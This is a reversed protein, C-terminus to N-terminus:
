PNDGAARATQVVLDPGEISLVIGQPAYIASLQSVADRLESTHIATAAKPLTFDSRLTYQLKMGNDSAWRTLMTKLTGDMPTAEYAYPLALPIESTKDPFRHVPKWSGGFDRARPTGCASLLPSALAAALVFLLFKNVPPEFTPCSAFQSAPQPRHAGNPANQSKWRSTERAPARPITPGSAVTFLTRNMPMKRLAAVTGAQAYASCVLYNICNFLAM